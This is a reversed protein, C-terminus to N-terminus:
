LETSDARFPLPRDTRVMKQYELPDGYSAGTAGLRVLEYLQELVPDSKPVSPPMAVTPTPSIIKKSFPIKCRELFPLLWKLDNEDQIQLTIEM